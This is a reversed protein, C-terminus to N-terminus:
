RQRPDREADGPRRGMLRWTQLITARLARWAELSEIAVRRAFEVSERYATWQRWRSLRAIRGETRAIREDMRQLLERRDMLMRGAGPSRTGGPRAQFPFRCPFATHWSPHWAGATMGGM